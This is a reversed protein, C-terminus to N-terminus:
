QEVMPEVTRVAKSAAWTAVTMSVSLAAWWGASSAAM